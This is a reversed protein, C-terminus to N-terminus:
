PSDFDMRLVRLPYVTIVGATYTKNYGEVREDVAKTPGPIKNAPVEAWLDDSTTRKFFLIVPGGFQGATNLRRVTRWQMGPYKARLHQQVTLTTDGRFVSGARAWFNTSLWVENPEHIERNLARMTRIGLEVDEVLEEFTKETAGTTTWRIAGAVGAPADLVTMNPLNTMGFLGKNSDGEFLVNDLLRDLGDFVTTLEQMQLPIGLDSARAIDDVDEGWGLAMRHLKYSTRWREISVRPIDEIGGSTHWKAIGAGKFMVYYGIEGDRAPVTGRQPILGGNAFQHGPREHAYEKALKTELERHLFLTGDDSRDKLRGVMVTGVGMQLADLRILRGPENLAQM